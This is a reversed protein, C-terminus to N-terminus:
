ERWKRAKPRRAQDGRVRAALYRHVDAAAYGQGSKIAESRSTVADAVFARREEDLQTQHEIAELMFALPSKDAAKAAAAVRRKLDAAIKLTTAM